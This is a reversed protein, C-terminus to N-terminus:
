VSCSAALSWAEDAGCVATAADALLLGVIGVDVGSCSGGFGVGRSMLSNLCKTEAPETGTLSEGRIRLM